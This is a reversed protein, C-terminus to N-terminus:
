PARREMGKSTSTDAGGEEGDEPDPDPIVNEGYGDEDDDFSIGSKENLDVVSVDKRLYRLSWGLEYGVSKDFERPKVDNWYHGGRWWCHYYLAMYANSAQYFVERVTSLNEKVIRHSEQEKALTKRFVGNVKELEQKEQRLFLLESHEQEQEAEKVKRELEAIQFNREVISFKACELEFSLKKCSEM